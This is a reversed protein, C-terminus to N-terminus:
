ADLLHVWCELITLGPGLGIQVLLVFLVSHCCAMLIQPPKLLVLWVDDKHILLHHAEVVIVAHTPEARICLVVVVAHRLLCVLAADALELVDDSDVVQPTWHPDPEESACSAEGHLTLVM